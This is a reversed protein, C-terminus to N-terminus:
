KRQTIESCVNFAPKKDKIVWKGSEDAMEVLGYNGEAGCFYPQALLEYIFLCQIDPNRGLEAVTPKIYEAMEEDKREPSHLNIETIWIPRKYCKLHELMDRKGQVNTISGMHSYWHWSLVDFPTVYDENVLRDVLGFHLWGAPNVVTFAAPDGAKV